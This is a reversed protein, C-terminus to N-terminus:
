FHNTKQGEKFMDTQTEPAISMRGGRSVHMLTATTDEETSHGRRTPRKYALKHDISVQNSEGVRQVTFTLAVSGKKGKDGNDVTGAAVECLAHAVKSMFAGADLENLFENPDFKTQPSMTTEGKPQTTTFHIATLTILLALGAAAMLWLLPRDNGPPQESPLPLQLVRDYRRSPRLM